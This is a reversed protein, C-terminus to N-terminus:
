TRSRLQSPAAAPCDALTSPVAAQAQDTHAAWCGCTSQRGGPCYALPQPGLQPLLDSGALPPCARPRPCSVTLKPPPPIQRGLGASRQACPPDGPPDPPQQSLHTLLAQLQPAMAQAIRHFQAAVSRKGGLHVFSELLGLVPARERGSELLGVLQELLTQGM